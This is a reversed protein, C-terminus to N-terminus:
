NVKAFNRLMKKCFKAFYNICFKAFNQSIGRFLNKSEYKNRIERFKFLGKRIWGLQQDM